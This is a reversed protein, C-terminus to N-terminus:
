TRRRGRPLQLHKAREAMEEFDAARRAEEVAVAADRPLYDTLWQEVAPRLWRSRITVGDILEARRTSMDPLPKPFGRQEILKTIYSVSRRDKFHQIGLRRRIYWLTVPDDALDARFAHSHRM